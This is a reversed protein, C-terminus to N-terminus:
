RRVPWALRWLIIAVPAALAIWSAWRWGPGGWLCAILGFVTVAAIALPWGFIRMM